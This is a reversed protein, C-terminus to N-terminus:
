EQYAQENEYGEGYICYYYDYGLLVEYFLWCARAM